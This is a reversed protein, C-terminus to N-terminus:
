PIDIITKTPCVKVCEKIGQCINHDVIPITQGVPGSPESSYIKLAPFSIAKVPCKKECLNCKICGVKCIKRVKAGKDKSSCNVLVKAKKPTLLILNRPCAKICKGCSVCKEPDIIPLGDKGMKLADFKCARACNGYGLCGYDCLKDGGGVLLVAACDKIGHYEFKKGCKDNSGGCYVKAVLKEKLECSAGMIKSIEEAVKNGGVPCSSIDAKGKAIAEALARCGPYGCAGCNAGPLLATIQDVKPDEEVKFKEAAYALLAGSVAGIIALTLVSALIIWMNAM